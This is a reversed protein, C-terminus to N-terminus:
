KDEKNPSSPVPMWHTPNFHSTVDECGSVQWYDGFDEALEVGMESWNYDYCFVYGDKPATAIPSWKGRLEAELEDIRPQHAVCIDTIKDVSCACCKDGLKNLLAENMDDVEQKGRLEDALAQMLAALRKGTQAEIHLGDLQDAASLLVRAEEDAQQLLEKM